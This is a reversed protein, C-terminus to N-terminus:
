KVRSRYLIDVWDCKFLIIIFKPGYELEIIDKLVGYYSVDGIIPNWDKASSFSSTKAEVMVRSNQVKRAVEADKIHFRFRNIIFRKYRQALCNPGLALCELQQCQLADRGEVM